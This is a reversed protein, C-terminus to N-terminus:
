QRIAILLKLGFGHDKWSDNPRLISGSKWEYVLEDPPENFAPDGHRPSGSRFRLDRDMQWSVVFRESPPGPLLTLDYYRLEVRRQFLMFFDDIINRYLQERDPRTADREHRRLGREYLEHFTRRVDIPGAIDHIVIPFGLATEEVLNGGTSTIIWSFWRSEHPVIPADLKAIWGSYKYLRMLSIHDAAFSSPVSWTVRSNPYWSGVLPLRPFSPLNPNGQELMLQDPNGLPATIGYLSDKLNVTVDTLAGSLLSSVTAGATPKSFVNRPYLVYLDDLDVHGM